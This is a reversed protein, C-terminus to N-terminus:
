EGCHDVFYIGVTPPEALYVDIDTRTPLEATRWPRLECRELLEPCRTSFPGILDEEGPPRTLFCSQGVFAMLPAGHARERYSIGRWTAQPSAWSAWRGFGDQHPSADDYLVTAGEPLEPLWARLLEHEVAPAWPRLWFPLYLLSLGVVGILVAKRPVSPRRERLAEAGLAALLLAPALSPLQLRLVDALPWSKPLVPLATLAWWGALALALRRRPGFFALAALAPLIAPTLWLNFFGHTFRTAGPPWVAPALIQALFPLTFLQGYDVASQSPGVLAHTLRLGALGAIALAALLVGPAHRREAHALVWAVPVLVAAMAEPRVHTAFGIALGSVLALSVGGFRTFAVAALVALLEFSALSVHMVETASTRVHAPLLALGLGAVLAPLRQGPVLLRALAWLMPPAAAALLLNTLYVADPTHGALRSIPAMLAAFGGGYLPHPLDLGWVETLRGYGFFPGWLLSRPSLLLRVGLSTAAVLLLDRRTEPSAAAWSRRGPGILAIVGFVFVGLLSAQLPGFPLPADRPSPLTWAPLEESSGPPAPNKEDPGIPSPSPQGTQPPRLSLDGGREELRECLARVVPPQEEAELDEGLLEWRPFLTLGHHSCAGGGEARTAEVSLTQGDPLRVELRQFEPHETVELVECGGLLEGPEALTASLAASLLATLLM